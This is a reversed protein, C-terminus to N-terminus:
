RSSKNRPPLQPISTSSIDCEIGQAECGAFRLQGHQINPHPNTSGLHFADFQNNTSKAFNASFTTSITLPVFLFLEHINQPRPLDLLFHTVKSEHGGAWASKQLTM